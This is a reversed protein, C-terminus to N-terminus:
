ALPAQAPVGRVIIASSGAGATAGATTLVVRIYQLSGIYGARTVTNQQGAGSLVVFTGLQDSAAVDTFTSNDSSEQLKPTHTGDTWAGYEIVAMAAGYGQLNASTGNVAVNATRVIPTISQVVDLITKIDRNAM